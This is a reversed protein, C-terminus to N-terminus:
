HRQKNLATSLQRKQRIAFLAPIDLLGARLSKLQQLWERFTEPRHFTFVPRARPKPDRHDSFRTVEGTSEYLFVLPENDLYKLKAKAYYETQDERVSFRHGEEERKAEIIGVAKKDVFLVYDAPGVSTSYERVGVGIGASLNLKTKAQIIWAAAVLQRDINDRAIQKPNQNIM